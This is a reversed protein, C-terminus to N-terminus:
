CAQKLRDKEGNKKCRIWTDGSDLISRFKFGWLFWGSNVNDGQRIIYTIETLGFWISNSKKRCSHPM